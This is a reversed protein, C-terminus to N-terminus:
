SHETVVCVVVGVVEDVEIEVDEAAEDDIVWARGIVAVSVVDAVSVDVGAVTIVSVPVPVVTEAVPVVVLEPVETVPVVVDVADVVVGVVSLGLAHM